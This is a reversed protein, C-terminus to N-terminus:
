VHGAHQICYTMALIIAAIGLSILLCGIGEWLDGRTLAM